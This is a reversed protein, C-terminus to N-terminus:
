LISRILQLAEIIPMIENAQREASEETLSLRSRLRNVIRSRKRDPEAVDSLSFMGGNIVDYVIHFYEPNNVIKLYLDALKEDWTIETSNVLTKLSAHKTVFFQRTKEEDTWDPMTGFLLKKSQSILFSILASKLITLLVTM